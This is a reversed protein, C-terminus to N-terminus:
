GDPTMLPVVYFPEQRLEEVAEAVSSYNDLLYRAWLSISLPKRADDSIPNVYESETLYLLNAVLGAENM